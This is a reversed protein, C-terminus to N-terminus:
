FRDVIASSWNIGKVKSFHGCGFFGRYASLPSPHVSELIKHKMTDILYQKDKANNGWLIFTIPGSHNDSIYKIINDTYDQWFDEHSNSRGERVSLSTNLLLVGQKAWPTLDTNTNDIGIDNKIEKFINRLSPPMKRGNEVSFCLGMAEGENIYPDQGLIVVRTDEFNFFNFCAYILEQPPYIKRKSREEELFKNVKNEDLCVELIKKWNTNVYEM